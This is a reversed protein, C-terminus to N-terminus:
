SKQMYPLSTNQRCFRKDILYTMRDACEALFLRRQAILDKPSAHSLVTEYQKLQVKKDTYMEMYRNM